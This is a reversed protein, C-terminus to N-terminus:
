RDVRISASVQRTCSLHLIKQLAETMASQRATHTMIVIEAVRAEEDSEKQICSAISIGSDGLARAIQALVGPEDAVSLRLYFRATTEGFARVPPSTAPFDVRQAVGAVIDAVIACLDALVASSTPQAGAGRGYLVLKDVEDGDILVANFVGNVSALHHDRPLLTPHVNAEIVGDVLRATAVLRVVYGMESAYRFDKEALDTIGIRHIREPRVDARFALTTLISLKYAADTAEVDNRPDAEAYGLRQAEALADAYERGDAMATLIFNTTGNIIAQIQSIDNAVLDRRVVRIIPIGGGVSAEFFLNVRHRDAIQLLEYGHKAIVEKNATVVHKGASLAREIYTRAPEEGGLLEVVVAIEPDDLIAEADTTLLGRHISADRQRTVDRVLIRSVEIRAGLTQAIRDGKRALVSIVGSGVIGAGLVGVKVPRAM